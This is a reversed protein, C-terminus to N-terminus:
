YWNNNTTPAIAEACRNLPITSKVTTSYIYIGQLVIFGLETLNYLTSYNNYIRMSLYLQDFQM